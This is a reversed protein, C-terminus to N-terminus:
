VRFVALSCPPDSISSIQLINVWFQVFIGTIDMWFVLIDVTQPVQSVDSMALKKRWQASIENSQRNVPM